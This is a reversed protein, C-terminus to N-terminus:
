YLRVQLAEPSLSAGEPLCGFGSRALLSEAFIRVQLLTQLLWPLFKEM